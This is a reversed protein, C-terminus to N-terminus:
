SQNKKSRMLEVIKGWKYNGEPNIETIRIGCITFISNSYWHVIKGSFNIYSDMVARDVQLLIESGVRLNNIPYDFKVRLGTISVDEVYTEWSANTDLLSVKIKFSGAYRPDERNEYQDM